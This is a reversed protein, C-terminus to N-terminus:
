RLFVGFPDNMGKNSCHGTKRSARKQFVYVEFVATFVRDGSKNRSCFFRFMNSWDKDIQVPKRYFMTSNELQKEIGIFM